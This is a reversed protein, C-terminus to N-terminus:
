KKMYKQYHKQIEEETADPNFARYEAKIDEPVSVAGTGRPPNPALHEKSAASQIAAKRSAQAARQTLADFNALRYADLLTNGKKVLEHFRGYNDMKALDGFEKISPDVAAIEKVQEEIMARAERERVQRAAAEAKVRAEREQRVEPLSNVLAQYEEPTLGAKKQLAQAQRAQHQRQYADLEEKSTIPQGTYPNTMGSSRIAEDIARRTEEQSERRIREIEADREAEAKRRAAAYRADDETKGGEAAQDEPPQAVEEVAPAASEQEEAGQEAPATVEQAEEGTEPELGFVESYDIDM